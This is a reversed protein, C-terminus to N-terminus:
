GFNGVGLLPRNLSVSQVIKRASPILFKCHCYRVSQGLASIATAALLLLRNENGRSTPPPPLPDIKQDGNSRGNAEHGNLGERAREVSHTKPSRRILPGNPLRPLLRLFQAVFSCRSSSPFTTRGVSDAYILRPPDRLDRAVRHSTAAATKHIFGDSFACSRVGAGFMRPFNPKSTPLYNISYTSGM